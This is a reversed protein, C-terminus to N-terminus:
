APKPKAPPPEPKLGLSKSRKLEEAFQIMNAESDGENLLETAQEMTTLPMSAATDGLMLRIAQVEKFPDIHPVSTGVWRANLYAQIVYQNNELIAAIFGPASLNGKMVEVFFYMEYIPKLFQMSFDDREVNLTHEFDKIAARSASYNSNYKSLAVDPPMGVAACLVDINMGYFDKFYLQYKNPNITKLEAGIPNNYTQKNQTAAVTDALARGAIDEPLNPNAEADHAKALQGMLPSEGTSHKQHVVQYAIKALEEAAGVTAEKYRELKKITEIVVSILPLGRMNDIRFESGYVLYAMKMGIENRASVRATDLMNLGPKRIYYAVHENTASLEIGNEIRNGNVQAQDFFPVNASAKVPQIIHAGDVLQVKLTNDDSLRLIVLVDGGVTANKHAVRQLKSLSQMGSYGSLSECNAYIHFKSEIDRSFEEADVTVGSQKLINLMPEAQLRLGKGIVWRTHKKLVTQALESDLYAAWSRARLGAYDVWYNKIPGAEGLNKEGDFVWQAVQRWNGGGQGYGTFDAKAKVPKTFLGALWGSGLREKFIEKISAM